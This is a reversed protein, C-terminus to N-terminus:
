AAPQVSDVPVCSCWDVGDPVIGDKRDCHAEQDKCSVLSNVCGKSEGYRAQIDGVGDRDYTTEPAFVIKFRSWEIEPRQHTFPGGQINQVVSVVGDV